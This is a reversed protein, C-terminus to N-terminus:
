VIHLRWALFGFRSVCTENHSRMIRYLDISELILADRTGKRSTLSHENSTDSVFVYTPKPLPLGTEVNVCHEEMIFPAPVGSNHTLPGLSEYSRIKAMLCTLGAATYVGRDITMCAKKAEPRNPGEPATVNLTSITNM